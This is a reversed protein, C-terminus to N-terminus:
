MFTVQLAWTRYLYNLLSLLQGSHLTPYSVTDWSRLPRIRAEALSRDLLRQLARKESGAEVLRSTTIRPIMRTTQVKRSPLAPPKPIRSREPVDQESTTTEMAKVTETCLLPLCAQITHNYPNTQLHTPIRSPPLSKFAHLHSPLSHPSSSEQPKSDVKVQQYVARLRQLTEQADKLFVVYGLIIGRLSWFRMDYIGIEFGRLLLANM